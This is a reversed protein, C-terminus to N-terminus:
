RCVGGNCLETMYPSGLDDIAQDINDIFTVLANEHEDNFDYIAYYAVVSDGQDDSKSLGVQKEGEDGEIEKEEVDGEIKYEQFGLALLMDALMFEYTKENKVIIEQQILKTCIGTYKRKNKNCEKLINLFTYYMLLKYHGDQYSIFPNKTAPSPTCAIDIFALQGKKWLKTLEKDEYDNVDFVTADIHLSSPKYTILSTIKDKINPAQIRQTIAKASSARKTDWKTEVRHV